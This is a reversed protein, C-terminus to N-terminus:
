IIDCAVVDSKINQDGNRQRLCCWQRHGFIINERISNNLYILEVAGFNAEGLTCTHNILHKGGGIHKSTKHQYSLKNNTPTFSLCGTM